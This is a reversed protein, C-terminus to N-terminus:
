RRAARAKESKRVAAPVIQHLTRVLSKRRGEAALLGALTQRDLENLFADLAAQLHAKLGCVAIIPCTNTARDFCEVLHLNPEADRVVQGLRIEAPDRALIVGGSRGPTVQLYGRDGLTNPSGTPAVSRSPLANRVRTHASM